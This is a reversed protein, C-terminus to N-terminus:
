RSFACWSLITEGGCQHSRSIWPVQAKGVSESCSRSCLVLDRVKNYLYCSLGHLQLLTCLGHVSREPWGFIIEPTISSCTSCIGPSCLFRMSVEVKQMGGRGGRVMARLALLDRRIPYRLNVESAESSTSAASSSLVERGMWLKARNRTPCHIGLRKLIRTPIRWPLSPTTSPKFKWPPLPLAMTFLITGLKRGWQRWNM